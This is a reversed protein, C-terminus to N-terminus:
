ATVCRYLAERLAAERPDTPVGVGGRNLGYAYGLGLDPDAFGFSGGLGTHGFARTSSGFPLMTFPKMFGMSFATDVKLIRDRSEPVARELETLTTPAIGLAHGGTAFCGYAKAISRV